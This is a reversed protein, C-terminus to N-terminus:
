PTTDPVIGSFGALVAVTTNAYNPTAILNIGAALAEEVSGSTAQTNGVTYANAYGCMVWLDDASGFTVGLITCREAILELVQETGGDVGAQEIWDSADTTIQLIRVDQEFWLGQQPSGNVRVVM